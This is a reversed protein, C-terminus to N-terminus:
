DVRSPRARRRRCGDLTVCCRAGDAVCPCLACPHHRARRKHRHRRRLTAIHGLGLSRWDRGLLSRPCPFLRPAPPPPMPSEIPTRSRRRHPPACVCVCARTPIGVPVFTCCRQVVKTLRPPQSCLGHSTRARTPLMTRRPVIQRPRVRHAFIWAFILSVCVYLQVTSVPLCGAGSRRPRSDTSVRRVAAFSRRFVVPAHWEVETGVAQTARQGRRLGTRM